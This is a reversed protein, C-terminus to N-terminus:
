PTVHRWHRLNRARHRAVLEPGVVGWAHIWLVALGLYAAMVLTSLSLHAHRALWVIAAGRLENGALIGLPRLM